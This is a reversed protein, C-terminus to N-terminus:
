LYCEVSEIKIHYTRIEGPVGALRFKEQNKQTEGPLHQCIPWLRKRGIKELEDNM